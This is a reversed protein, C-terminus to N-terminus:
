FKWDAGVQQFYLPITQPLEDFIKRHRISLDQFRYMQNRSLADAFFNKKTEVYKVFVRVNHVLCLSVIKRILTM